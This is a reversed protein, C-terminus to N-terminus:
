SPILRRCVPDKVWFHAWVALVLNHLLWPRGEPRLVLIRKSIHHESNLTNVIGRAHEIFFNTQMLGMKDTWPDASCIKSASM